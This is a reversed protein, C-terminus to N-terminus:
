LFMSFGNDQAFSNIFALRNLYVTEKQQCEYPTYVNLIVCEKGNQAIQLATCWDVEHKIVNVCSDLCKHWLIAVGGPIHGSIIGESTDVCSEGVGHFNANLSNLDGLDQKTLIDRAFM